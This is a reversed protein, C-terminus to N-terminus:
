DEDKWGWWMFCPPVNIPEIADDIRKFHPAMYSRAKPRFQYVLFAGGKGGLLNRALSPSRGLM